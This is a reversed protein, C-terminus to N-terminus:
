NSPSLFCPVIVSRPTRSGLSGVGLSRIFGSLMIWGIMPRLPKKLVTWM